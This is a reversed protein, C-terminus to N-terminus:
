PGSTAESLLDGRRIRATWAIGLPDCCLVTLASLWRIARESDTNAGVLEAAAETEIGQSQRM